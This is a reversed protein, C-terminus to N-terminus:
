IRRVEDRCLRLPLQGRADRLQRESGKLEACEFAVPADLREPEAVVVRRLLQFRALRNRFPQYRDRVRDFAKAIQRFSANPLHKAGLIIDPDTDTPVAVLRM